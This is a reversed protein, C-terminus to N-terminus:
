VAVVDAVDIDGEEFCSAMREGNGDKRADATTEILEYIM